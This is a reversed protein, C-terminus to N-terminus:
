AASREAAFRAVEDKIQAIWKNTREETLDPENDEDLALGIFWGPEIEGRSEDFEYGETPWKGILRAKSEKLTEWIEGLCDLYNYPYGMADGMAFFGIAKGSLDIGELSPLFEAWDFQLEGIDWTSAGCLVVDVSRFQEVSAESIEQLLAVEDGLAEAIANAVMETNGTTSGYFIGYKM